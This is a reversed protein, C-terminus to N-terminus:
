KLLNVTNKVTKNVIKTTDRLTGGGTFLWVIVLVISVKILTKVLVLVLNIKLIALTGM